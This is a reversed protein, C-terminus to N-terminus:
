STPTSESRGAGAWLAIIALPVMALGTLRAAYGPISLELWACPLLWIVDIAVVALTVRGHSRWSRAVWQYAHTRHAQDIRELRLLRRGLTVTADVFFVGGLTIWVYPLVPNEYGSALALVAISYGLYGSGVDGMLIRAPPWNWILFGLIAAALVLESVGLNTSSGFRLSLVCAACLIFIAESAAVGDIGDMFNFLNTTWVVAFVGLLSLGLGPQLLHSGVRISPMGGIAVIALAAVAFHVMLRSVSSISRRDDIFGILAIALGALLALLLSTSFYGSVWLILFGINAAAVIAIGGGRPTPITHSSRDSPHDIIGARIAVTRILLTM